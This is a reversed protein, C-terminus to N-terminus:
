VGEKRVAEIAAKWGQYFSGWDCNTAPCAEFAANRDLRDAVPKSPEVIGPMGTATSYTVAQQCYGGPEHFIESAGCHACLWEPMGRKFAKRGPSAPQSALITYLTREAPIRKERDNSLLDALLERKILVDTM